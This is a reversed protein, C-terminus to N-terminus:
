SSSGSARQGGRLTLAKMLALVFGLTLAMRLWDWFIWARATSTIEEPTMGSAAQEMLPVVGKPIFYVATWVLAVLYLGLALAVWTRRGRDPWAAILTLLICLGTPPLAGRWFRASADAQNTGKFYDTVSDPLNGGWEPILSVRQYVSAGFVVGSMVIALWLLAEALRKRPM